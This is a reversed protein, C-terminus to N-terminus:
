ARKGWVSVHAFGPVYQIIDTAIIDGGFVSYTNGQLDVGEGDYGFNCGIYVCEDVGFLADYIGQVSVEEVEFPYDDNLLAKFKM